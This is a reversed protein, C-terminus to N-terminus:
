RPEGTLHDAWFYHGNPCEYGFVTRDDYTRIIAAPNTFWTDSTLRGQDACHLCTLAYAEWDPPLHHSKIEIM